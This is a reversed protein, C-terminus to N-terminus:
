EPQSILDSLKKEPKYTKISPHTQLYEKIREMRNEPYPHTLLMEPTEGREGAEKKLIEMVEIMARPNYGAESMLVLGWQDAELEDHRSYRLQLMQNVMAAIMAASSGQQQDSSTGVQTALVLMQGLQGKAMQQASHRQIVHGMEHSLVGALQADTQLQNLLGLTIFIQGGPLAFANITKPDKVVHFQFKWPSNAAKSNNLISNGIQRVVEIRADNDPLEGGMESSMEPAAQIGLRVEEEPTIAVHQKEGTVPNVETNKYYMIFAFIAIIAMMILRTKFGRYPDQERGDNPQMTIDGNKKNIKM